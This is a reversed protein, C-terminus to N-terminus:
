KRMLWWETACEGFSDNWYRIILMDRDRYPLHQANLKKTIRGTIWKSHPWTSSFLFLILYLIILWLSYCLFFFIKNSPERNKLNKWIKWELKAYKRETIVPTCFVDTSIWLLMFHLKPIFISFNPTYRKKNKNSLDNVQKIMIRINSSKIM